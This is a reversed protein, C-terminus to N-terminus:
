RYFSWWRADTNVRSVSFGRPPFDDTFSENWTSIIRIKYGSGYDLWDPLTLNVLGRGTPSWDIGLDALRQGHRWLEFRVGTGAFTVNGRWDLSIDTGITIIGTPALSTILVGFFEIAGLDITQVRRPAGVLDVERPDADNVGLDILPSDPRLSFENDAFTLPDNDAGDFDVLRPDLEFNDEAEEVLEDLQEVDTIITTGVHVYHGDLHEFFCNRRVEAPRTQESDAVIGLTHNRMLINNIIRGTCNHLGAGGGDPTTQNEVITNNIVDGICGQLAGGIRATNRQFLNDTIPGSCSFVGGGRDASNGQFVNGAVAAEARAVAGGNASTNAEFLNSVVDGLARDIAGGRGEATNAFFANAEYTAEGGSIAGGLPASNLEFHNGFVLGFCKELAGGQETATNELFSNSEVLGDCLYMAGGKGAQNAQIVNSRIVAECFVFGGGASRAVNEAIKNNEITGRCSAFAGGIFSGNRLIRNNRITGNCVNFAGGRIFADNDEILNDEIIGPCVALAGGFDAFNDRFVNSQIPGSCTSVAGSNRGVNGIFENSRIVAATRFIAAGNDAKNEQFFNDEILPGFCAGMAGGNDKAENRIFINNEIPGNCRQLGAGDTAGNDRITNYRVPGDCFLLAGGERAQNDEIVNFEIPGHCERVTGGEGSQNEHIRNHRLVPSAGNGIIASAVDSFGGRLTLGEVIFRDDENGTLELVAGRDAADIITVDRISDDLPDTGTLHLRKGNNRLTEVYLGPQIVIRELDFALLMAEQITDADGPVTLGQGTDAIAPDTGRLLEHPDDVGDGDTDLLEISSGLALEREDALGDGDTDEGGGREFCGLDVAPGVWRSKGALDRMPLRTLIELSAQDLCPSAAQLQFDNDAATTADDDPGDSDVFLPNEGISRNAWPFAADLAEVTAFRMGNTSVLVANKHGFFCNRDLSLRPTGAFETKARIADEGNHFFINAGIKLSGGALRLAAGQGNQRAINLAFTNNLLNGQFGSLGGGADAENAQVLNNKFEGVGDHVGGGFTEASNFEIRNGTFDAVSMAVGGGNRARNDRIINYSIEGDCAYLGGGDGVASNEEILNHEIAGSCDNLAGGNGAASNGRITNRAILGNCSFLAGGEVAKHNAITNDQIPGSCNFLAAGELATNREIVNNEIAGLCRYLGGGSEGAVNEVIHNRRVPGLCTDLGGGVTRADNAQIVNDEIPGRCQSLGGGEFAQNRRILNARVPGTCQYVGGGFLTINDEITNNEILGGCFYIGGGRMLATNKRIINGRITALTPGRGETRIGGGNEAQGNTITFGVLTCTTGETGDFVIVSDFIQADLVTARVVDADSPDASRVRVNKGAFRLTGYYTGPHVIIEDGPEAAEIAEQVNAFTADPREQRNDDVHFQHASATAILWGVPWLGLVCWRRALGM